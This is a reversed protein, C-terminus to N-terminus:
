VDTMQVVLAAHPQGFGHPDHAHQAAETITQEHVPTASLFPGFVFGCSIEEGGHVGFMMTIGDTAEVGVPWAELGSRSNATDRNLSVAMERSM